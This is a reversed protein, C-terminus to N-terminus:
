GSRLAASHPVELYAAATVLKWPTRILLARTMGFSACASHPVELYPAAAVQKLSKM